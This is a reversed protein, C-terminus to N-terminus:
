SGNVESGTQKKSIRRGYGHLLLAIIVVALAYWFMLDM